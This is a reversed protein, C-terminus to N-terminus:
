EDYEGNELKLDVVCSVCLTRGNYEREILQGYNDRTPGHYSCRGCDFGQCVSM